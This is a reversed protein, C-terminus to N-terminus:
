TCSSSFYAALNGLTLVTKYVEYYIKHNKYKKKNKITIVHM